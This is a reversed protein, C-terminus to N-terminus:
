HYIPIRWRANNISSINLVAFVIETVTAEATDVTVGFWDRDCKLDTSQGSPVRKTIASCEYWIYNLHDDFARVKLSRGRNDSATFDNSSYRISIDYPKNSAFKLQFFISDVKIIVDTLTVEVEGQRWTQGVELISGPPTDPLATPLPIPTNTSTAKPLLADTARLPPQVKVSQTSEGGKLSLQTQLAVVTAQLFQEQTRAQQNTVYWVAIPGVIATIIAAIIIAWAKGSDDNSM